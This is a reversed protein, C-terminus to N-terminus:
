LRLETTLLFKVLTKQKLKRDFIYKSMEYLSTNRRHTQYYYYYYLLRKSLQNNCKEFNEFFNKGWAIRLKRFSFVDFSNSTNNQNIKCEHWTM